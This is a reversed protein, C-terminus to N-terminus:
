RSVGIRLGPVLAHRRVRTGGPNIVYQLDPQVALWTGIQALYTLEIATEAAAARNTSAAHVFHSGNRAAGVALGIEDRARSVLPGFLTLGGGLYSGVQNVRGDGLGLQIFATLLAPRTRGARWLTQDALLYAGRSGHREVPSGSALTDVLDPFRATYYWVGLAVKGLYSRGDERGIQFRRHRPVAAATDRRSLIAVEGAVLVGDGPAFLHIGGDPRRVPVGDLVAARVVMRRSPNYELRAGVATFPYISPGERDRGSTSYEPGIGFSANIFLNGSQLFYFETNVDYRGVLLSLQDAFMNQQLWAEELWVGPPAQLNSVKQVDGVLGSPAGGHAGLAYVFFQAGHWGVLQHLHLTLRASPVGIFVAGRRAGGAVNGVLEGTYGFAKKIAPPLAGSDTTAAQAGLTPPVSSLLAAALGLVATKRLRARAANRLLAHESHM